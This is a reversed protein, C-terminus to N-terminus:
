RWHRRIVKFLEVRNEESVSPDIHVETEDLLVKEGGISENESQTAGVTSEENVPFTQDATVASVKWPGRVKVTKESLNVVPIFVKGGHSELLCSPTVWERNLRTSRTTEILWSGDARGPTTAEVFQVSSALIRKAVKLRICTKQERKPAIVEDEVMAGM